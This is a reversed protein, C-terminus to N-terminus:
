ANLIDWGFPDYLDHYDSGGDASDEGSFHALVAFVLGALLLSAFALILKPKM